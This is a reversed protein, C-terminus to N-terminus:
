AKGYIAAYTTTEPEYINEDFCSFFIKTLYNSL